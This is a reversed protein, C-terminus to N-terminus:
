SSPPRPGPPSERDEAMPLRDLDDLHEEIPSPKSTAGHLFALVVALALAFAFLVFALTM